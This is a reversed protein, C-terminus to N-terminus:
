IKGTIKNIHQNFNFKRHITIGPYNITDAQQKKNNLFIKTDRKNNPKKKTIMVKSKQDEFSKTELGM